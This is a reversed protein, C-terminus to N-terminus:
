SLLQNSLLITFINNYTTTIVIQCCLAFRWSDIKTGSAKLFSLNTKYLVLGHASGDLWSNETSIQSHVQRCVADWTGSHNHDTWCITLEMTLRSSQKFLHAVWGEQDQLSISYWITTNQFYRSSKLVLIRQKMLLLM